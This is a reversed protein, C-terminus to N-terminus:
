KMEISIPDSLNWSMIATVGVKLQPDALDPILTYANKLGNVTIKVSTSRARCFVSPSVTPDDASAYDLRGVLYFRSGPYIKIDDFGTYTKGTNNQFELAFHVNEANGTPLVLTNIPSFTFVYSAGIGGRPNGLDNYVQDDYIYLPDADPDKPTFDFRQPRQRDIIIGTLPISKDADTTLVTANKWDKITGSVPNIEFKLSSCAYQLPECVAAAASGDVVAHSYTYHTLIGAWNDVTSKYEGIVEPDRSTALASETYYWLAPPYCYLGSPAVLYRYDGDPIVFATGNWRAAVAGDPLGSETCPDRKLAVSASNTTPNTITVMTSVKLKNLIVKSLEYVYYYNGDHYGYNSDTSQSHVYLSKYIDTLVKDLYRNSAPFVAMSNVLEDYSDKLKNFNSYASPDSWAYVKGTIPDTVSASALNTLYQLRATMLSSYSTAGAGSIFPKLSFEIGGPTDASLGSADLAGNRKFFSVEGADGADTDAAKGYALVMNTGREFFVNEYVRANINSILGGATNFSGLIYNEPLALNDSIRESYYTIDDTNFPILTLDVIGRFKDTSTQVTADSMKTQPISTEGVSIALPIRVASGAAPADDILSCAPLMYGLM